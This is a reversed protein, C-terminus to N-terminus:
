NTNIGDQVQKIVDEPVGFQRVGQYFQNMQEPSFGSTVQKFLEMPNGNSNRLSEVKQFM